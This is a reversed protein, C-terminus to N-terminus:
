KKIERWTKNEKKLKMLMPWEEHLANRHKKYFIGMPIKNPIINYDYEQALQLAKKLTREEGSLKYMKSDRDNVELNFIICDQIIEVFSFGKHKIAKEIIEQTHTEDRSNCRAVFSAGASLALHIPNVPQNFGGLPESKTKFGIQSTPTGQGTTLSFAQNDNVLLTIDPNFRCAHIFHAMGESYTDGDGAFVLVNLNPNGLKIGTGIPIPRGHLGYVGSINLYDFIKGHCGVGAAMTFSDRKIGQKELSLLARRTAELIMHDPCGPCWTAHKITRLPVGKEEPNKM